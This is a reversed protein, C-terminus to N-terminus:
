GDFHIKALYNEAHKGLLIRRTTFFVPWRKGFWHAALREFITRDKRERAAKILREYEYSVQLRQNNLRDCRLNFINITEEVLEEVSDYNNNAIEVAKCAEANPNLEGTRRDFDFLCPSAPLDFLPSLLAGECSKSLEGTAILHDKFADCSLNSPLPFEKKNNDRGSGGLCVGIVNNWDLTWNKDIDSSDSKSHFHEIRQLDYESPKIKVECYACLAGQDSFILQKLDKYPGGGSDNRFDDWILTPEMEKWEDDSKSAKFVTM